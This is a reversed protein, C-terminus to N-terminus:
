GTGWYCGAGITMRNTFTTGLVPRTAKTGFSFFRAFMSIILLQFLLIYYLMIHRFILYNIKTNSIIM